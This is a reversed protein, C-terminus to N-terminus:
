DVDEVAAVDEDTVAPVENWQNREALKPLITNNMRAVARIIATKEDRVQRIVVSGFAYFTVELNKM